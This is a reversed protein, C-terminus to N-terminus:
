TNGQRSPLLLAARRSRLSRHLPSSPASAVSAVGWGRKEPHFCALSCLILSAPGREVVWPMGFCCRTGSALSPHRPPSLLSQTEQSASSSQGVEMSSLPNWPYGLVIVGGGGGEGGGNQVDEVM